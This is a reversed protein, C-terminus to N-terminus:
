AQDEEKRQLWCVVLTGYGPASWLQIKGNHKDMIIKAISLGLGSQGTKTKTRSADVQYFPEFVKEQSAIPIAEGENQVLLIVGDTRWEALAQQFVPFVWDPLKFPESVAGLWITDNPLTHRIANNMLNDIIRVMQSVNVAYIGQVCSEKHLDISNQTCLEDYGSLLMDFLEDGDVEVREMEHYSSRLVTYMTLDDLLQKMYDMKEFLMSFYEIREQEHLLQKGQMLETYARILTLPTKLDHSLSAVIYEKEQQEKKIAEQSQMIQSRMHMFHSILEGIEDHTKHLIPQLPRDNAFSTMQEMLLRIPRAFKRHIFYIVSAYLVVFFFVLCLGIWLTRHQVGQLWQQRTLKIEYFGLLKSGNFVPKKISYTYYSKQLEYLHAYLNDRNIRPLSAALSDTGSTFLTVGDYRYLSIKVKDSALEEVASYPEKSQIEYYSPSQLRTEIESITNSFEIYELIDQRQDYQSLGIYLAYLAAVPLLMVILFVLMLWYKLKM